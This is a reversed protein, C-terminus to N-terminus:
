NLFWIGVCSVARLLFLGVSALVTVLLGLNLEINELCSDLM